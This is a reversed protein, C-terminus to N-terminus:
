CLLENEGGVLVSKKLFMAVPELFTNSDLTAKTSFQRHTIQARCKVRQVTFNTM